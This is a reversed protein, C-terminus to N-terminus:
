IRLARRGSRAGTTWAVHEQEAGVRAAAQRGALLRLVPVVRVDTSRRARVRDHEYMEVRARVLGDDQGEWTVEPHLDRTMPHVLDVGREFSAHLAASWLQHGVRDDREGVDRDIVVQIHVQVPELLRDVLEPAD